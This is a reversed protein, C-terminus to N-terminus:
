ALYADISEVGDAEAALGRAAADARAREEADRKAAEAAREREERSRAMEEKAATAKLQM